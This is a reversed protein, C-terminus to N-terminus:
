PLIEAVAKARTWDLFNQLASIQAASLYPVLDGSRRDMRAGTQDLIEVHYLGRRESPDDSPDVLQLEIRGITTATKITEQNWSM